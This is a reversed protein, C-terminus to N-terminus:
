TRRESRGEPWFRDAMHADANVGRLSFDGANWFGARQNHHGVVRVPQDIPHDHCFQDVAHAGIEADQGPRQQRADGLNGFEHDRNRKRM